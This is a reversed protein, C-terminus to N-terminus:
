PNWVIDGWGIAPSFTVRVGDSGFFTVVPQGGVLVKLCAVYDATQVALLPIPVAYDVNLDGGAPITFSKIVPNNVPLTLDTASALYFEGTYDISAGKPNTFTVRAYQTTGDDFEVM